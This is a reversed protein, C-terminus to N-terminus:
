LRDRRKADAERMRRIADRRAAQWNPSRDLHTSVRLIRRRTQRDYTAATVPQNDCRDDFPRVYVARCWPATKAAASDARSLAWGRDQLDTPLDDLMALTTDDMDM